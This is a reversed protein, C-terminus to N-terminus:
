REVEIMDEDNAEMKKRVKLWKKRFDQFSKDTESM